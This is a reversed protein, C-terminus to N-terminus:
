LRYASCRAFRGTQCSSYGGSRSAEVHDIAAAARAFQALARHSNDEEHSPYDGLRQGRSNGHELRVTTSSMRADGAPMLAAVILEFIALGSMLSTTTIVRSRAVTIPAPAHSVTSLPIEIASLPQFSLDHADRPLQIPHPTPVPSPKSCAATEATAVAC